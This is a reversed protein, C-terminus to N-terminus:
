VGQTISRALVRNALAGLKDPRKGDLRIARLSSSGDSKSLKTGLADTILPHHLFRANRFVELGLLDAIYMQCASSPRLDDGRVILDMRFDVDDALSALQYAPSGSRQKIVPDHMLSHLDIRQQGHPWTKLNVSCSSPIKLRWTTEPEDFPLHLSRCDCAPLQTRSCSCAFLHGADRLAMALELPPKTRRTQSWHETLDKPDRPGEDWELGLWALSDAIFEPRVRTVDLDDIRLMVSGGHRAILSHAILFNVANGAHLYGSPTPAFRTRIGNPFHDVVQQAFFIPARPPVQVRV